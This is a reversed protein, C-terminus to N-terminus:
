HSVNRLAPPPLDLNSINLHNLNINSTLNTNKCHIKLFDDGSEPDDPIDSKYGAFRSYIDFIVDNDINEAYSNDPNALGTEVRSFQLNLPSQVQHHRTVSTINYSDVMLFGFLFLLFTISM